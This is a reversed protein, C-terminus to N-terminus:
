LNEKLAEKLVEKLWRTESTILRDILRNYTEEDEKQLEEIAKVVVSNIEIEVHKEIKKL